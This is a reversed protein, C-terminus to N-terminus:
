IGGSAEVVLLGRATQAVWATQGVPALGPKDIMRLEPVGFRGGYTYVRDGALLVSTPEEGHWHGDDVAHDDTIRWRYIDDAIRAVIAGGCIAVSRGRHQ